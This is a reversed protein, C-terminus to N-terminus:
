GTIGKAILEAVVKTGIQEAISYAWKGAKKLKDIAKTPENEKVAKEAQMVTTITEQHELNDQDQKERLAQRLRLLENILVQINIQESTDIINQQNFTNNQSTSQSGIAGQQGGSIKIEDGM